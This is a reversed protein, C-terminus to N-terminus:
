NFASGYKKKFKLVQSNNVNVFTNKDRNWVPHNTPDIDLKMTDGEKGWVSEVVIKTNDSLLLNVSHCEPHINKKAM